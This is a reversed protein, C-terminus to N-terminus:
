HLTKLAVEIPDEDALPGAIVAVCRGKKPAIFAASTYEPGGGSHGFVGYERDIMLGLGYEPARWPAGAVVPTAATMAALSGPSLLSGGLLGSLFGVVDVPTAWVAGAPGAWRTDYGGATLGAGVEPYVTDGMGAPEFVLESLTRGLPVGTVSEVFEGLLWYGLNSYRFRGRESRHGSPL